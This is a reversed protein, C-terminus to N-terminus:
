ARSFCISKLYDGLGAIRQRRVYGISVAVFYNLWNTFYELIRSLTNNIIYNKVKKDEM